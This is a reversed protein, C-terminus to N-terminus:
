ANTTIKVTNLFEEATINYLKDLFNVQMTGPGKCKIAALEGCVGVLAMAASVAEQKNEVAAIFAGIIATSSCGLGTVKTMLSNGNNIYFRKKRGIVIDIKGSICIITDYKEQLFIGADLAKNSEVTSDVGKSFSTNQKALALIESANGRIVTPRLLLLKELIDNRYKSAGAGVPDLAWPKNNNCATETAQLMAAIWYDDLTGINIVLANSINGIDIIEERAHSMIPSAGIALLANATNNMVVFNTINQVIPSERRLHQIHNWFLQEM